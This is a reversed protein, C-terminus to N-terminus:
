EFALEILKDLFKPYSYGAAAAAKPVLSADTMGPITNIELFYIQNDATVIFDSRSLGRCGLTQHALLAQRQLEKALAEDIPAPCIEECFKSDYKAIYDFFETKPRIEIVPLAQPDNNGLIAVTEEVGKIFEEVLVAQKYQKINKIASELEDDTKVIYTGLSSGGAVPKLVMPTNFSKKIQAIDLTLYDFIKGQPMKIDTLKELLSKALQKNLAISMAEVDSFTFKLGLTKLFGQVTGDEGFTGHFVPMVVDFKKYDSLFKDLDVPFDFYEKHYKSEDLNEFVKKSSILSVERESSDGGGLVAINLM